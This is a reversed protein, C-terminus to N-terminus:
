IRDVPYLLVAEHTLKKGFAYGLERCLDDTQAESSEGIGVYQRGILGSIWEVHDAVDLVSSTGPTPSM